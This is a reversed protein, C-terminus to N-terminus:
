PLWSLQEDRAGSRDAQERGQEAGLAIIFNVYEVKASARRLDRQHAIETSDVVGTADVLKINKWVEDHFASARWLDNGAHESACRWVANDAPNTKISVAVQGEVDALEITVHHQLVTAYESRHIGIAHVIFHRCGSQCARIVGPAFPEDGAAYWKGPPVLRELMAGTIDLHHHIERRSPDVPRLAM